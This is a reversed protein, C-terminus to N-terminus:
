SIIKHYSVWKSIKYETETMVQWSPINQMLVNSHCTIVSAWNFHQLLGSINLVFELKNNWPILTKKWHLNIQTPPNRWFSTKASLIPTPTQFPGFYASIM